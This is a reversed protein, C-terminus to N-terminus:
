WDTKVPFESPPFTDPNRPDFPTERYEVLLCDTIPTIRHLVDPWITIEIPGSKADPNQLSYHGDKDVFEFRVNGSVLLLREPNKSPDKGNHFHPGAVVGKQRRYITLQRGGFLYYEWTNRGKESSGKSELARLTGFIERYVVGTEM